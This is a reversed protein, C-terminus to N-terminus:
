TPSEMCGVRFEKVKVREIRRGVKQWQHLVFTGPFHMWPDRRLSEVLQEPTANPDSWVKDALGCMSPASSDAIYHWLAKGILDKKM